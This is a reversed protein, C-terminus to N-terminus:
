RLLKGLKMALAVNMPKLKLKGSMAAAQPNLRGSVIDVFDSDSVEITTEASQGGTDGTVWDDDKTLDLVCRGGAPGGIDFLVVDDSGQTLQPNDRIQQPLQKEMIDKPTIDTM